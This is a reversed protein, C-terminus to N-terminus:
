SSIKPVDISAQLPNCRTHQLTSALCSSHSSASNLASLAASLAASASSGPPQSSYMRVPPFRGGLGLLRSRCVGGGDVLLRGSEIRVFIVYWFSSFPLSIVVVYTSEASSM